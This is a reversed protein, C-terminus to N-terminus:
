SCATPRIRCLRQFKCWMSAREGKVKFKNKVKGFHVAHLIPFCRCNELENIELYQPIPHFGMNVWRGQGQIRPAAGCIAPVIRSLM